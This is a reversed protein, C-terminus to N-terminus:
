IRALAEAVRSAGKGDVTGCGAESLRRREGADALLRVTAEAIRGSDIEEVRGLYHWLRDRHLMEAARIQNDAVAIGIIPVGLSLAEWVTVGGALIALDAWALLRAMSGPSQMVRIPKDAAAARAKLADARPNAAGAVVIAQWDSTPLTELASLVLSSVDKPDTGGLSVAIRRVEDNSRRGITRWRDFEPRLLAYRPGFLLTADDDHDPYLAALAGYNQNIIVDASWPGPGGTDDIIALRAVQSRLASRYALPTGFVDLIVPSGAAYAATRAADDASYREADVINLGIGAATIWSEASAALPATAVYRVQGGDQRWAAALALTRGIHGIGISPDADARIVISGRRM